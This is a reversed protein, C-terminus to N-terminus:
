SKDDTNWVKQSTSISSNNLNRELQTQKFEKDDHSKNENFNKKLGEEQLSRLYRDIYNESNEDIEEKNEENSNHPKEGKKKNENYSFYPELLEKIILSSYIPQRESKIDVKPDINSNLPGITHKSDHQTESSDSEKVTGSYESSSYSQNRSTSSSESRSNRESESHDSFSDNIGNIADM